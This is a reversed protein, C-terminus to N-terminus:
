THSGSRRRARCQHFGSAEVKVSYTSPRLGTFFYEGKDDTHATSSINTGTDTITAAANAVVAGSPDSVIGRLQARYSGQAFAQTMFAALFCTSLFGIFIRKTSRM